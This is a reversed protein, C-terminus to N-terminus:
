DPGIGHRFNRESAELVEPKYSDVLESDGISRAFAAELVDSNLAKAAPRDVM